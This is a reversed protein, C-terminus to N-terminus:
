QPLLGAGLGYWKLNWTPFQMTPDLAFVTGACLLSAHCPFIKRERQTHTLGSFPLGWNTHMFCDKAIPGTDKGKQEGYCIDMHVSLLLFMSKAYKFLM